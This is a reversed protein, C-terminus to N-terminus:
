ICHVVVYSFFAGIVLRHRLEPCVIQHETEDEIEMKANRLRNRASCATQASLFRRHCRLRMMQWGAILFSELASTM